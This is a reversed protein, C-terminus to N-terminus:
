MHAIAPQVDDLQIWDDDPINQLMPRLGRLLPDARFRDITTIANGADLPVWGVVGAMFENQAALKLLFETEAM